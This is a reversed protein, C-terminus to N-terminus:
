FNSEFLSLHQACYYYHEATDPGNQAKEVAPHDPPEDKGLGRTSLHDGSVDARDAEEETVEHGDDDANPDTEFRNETDKRKRTNEQHSFGQYHGVGQCDTDVIHYSDEM